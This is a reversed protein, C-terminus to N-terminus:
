SGGFGGKEDDYNDLKLYSILNALRFTKHPEFKIIFLRLFKILDVPRVAPARANEPITGPHLLRISFFLFQFSIGNVKRKLGKSSLNFCTKVMAV